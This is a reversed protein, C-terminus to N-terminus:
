RRRYLTLKCVTSDTQAVIDYHSDIYQLDEEYTSRWWWTSTGEQHFVTWKPQHRSILDEREMQEKKGILIRNCPVIRNHCYISFESQVGAGRVRGHLTIIGSATASESRFLGSCVNPSKTWQKIAPRIGCPQM